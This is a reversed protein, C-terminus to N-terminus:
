GGALVEGGRLRESVAWGCWGGHRSAIGGCLEVFLALAVEVAIAAAIAVIFLEINLETAAAVRTGARGVEEAVVM